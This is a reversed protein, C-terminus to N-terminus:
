RGPNPHFGELGTQALPQRALDRARQAYIERAELLFANRDQTVQKWTFHEVRWGLRQLRRDAVRDAEFAEPSSHFDYEAKRSFCFHGWGRRFGDGCGDFLRRRRPQL